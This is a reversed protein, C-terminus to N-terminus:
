EDQYVSSFEDNELPLSGTLSTATLLDQVNNSNYFTKVATSLRITYVSYMVQRSSREGSLSIVIFGLIQYANGTCATNQWALTNKFCLPVFKKWNPSLDSLHLINLKANCSTRVTNTRPERRIVWNSEAPLNNPQMRSTDPADALVFAYCVMKPTFEVPLMKHLLRTGLGYNWLRTEYDITM